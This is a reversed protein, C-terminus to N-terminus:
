LKDAWGQCNHEDLLAATNPPKRANRPSNYYALAQRCLQKGSWHAFGAMFLAILGAGLKGVMVGYLFMGLFLVVFFKVNYRAHRDQDCIHDGGLGLTYQIAPLLHGYTGLVVDITDRSVGSGFFGYQVLHCWCGISYSSYGLYPLHHLLFDNLDNGSYM